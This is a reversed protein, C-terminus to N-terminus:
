RVSSVTVLVTSPVAVTVSARPKRRRMVLLTDNESFSDSSFTVGGRHFVFGGSTSLSYQRPRDNSASASGSYTGWPSDYSAYTGITSLNQDGNVRNYSSNVSYNWRNDKSNGNVNM